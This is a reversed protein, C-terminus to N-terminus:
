KTFSYFIPSIQRNPVLPNFRQIRAVVVAVYSSDAMAFNEASPLRGMGYKQSLVSIRSPCAEPAPAQFQDFQAKLARLASMVLSKEKAAEAALTGVYQVRGPNKQRLTQGNGLEVGTRKARSRPHPKM